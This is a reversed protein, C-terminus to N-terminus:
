YRRHSELLRIVPPRWTTTGEPWPGRSPRGARARAYAVFPLAIVLLALATM